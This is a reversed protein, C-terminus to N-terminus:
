THFKCKCCYLLRYRRIGLPMKICAATQGCYMPHCHRLKKMDATKRWKTPCARKTIRVDTSTVKAILYCSLHLNSAPLLSTPRLEGGMCSTRISVTVMVSVRVKVRIRVRSSVRVLGLGLALGLNNCHMEWAPWYVVSKGM